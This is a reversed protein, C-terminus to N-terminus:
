CGCCRKFKKGSGCPCPQNRGAKPAKTNRSVNVFVPKGAELSKRVDTVVPPTRKLEVPPGAQHLHGYIDDFVHSYTPDLQVFDTELRVAQELSGHKVYYGGFVLEDDSFVKGHLQIRHELYERLERAGWGFNNWADGLAELDLLNIAWPYPERDEKELLLALDTALPGYNDRTVCVCFTRNALEPSLQIVIDGKENYLTIVEGAKLRRFLRMAQEYAKQIGTDARFANRLRIFAKEPDRFPETPPSAKVEVILCLDPHIIVLDHEYQLDSTEYVKSYFKAPSGLIRRFHIASENEAAIDRARFYSMRKASSSLAGEGALLVASFLNNALPCIAESNSLRILPREDVISRETPYTLPSGEGRGVSFLKWFQEGANPFATKLDSYPLKGMQHLATMLKEYARQYDSTNALRGIDELAWNNAKAEDLLALRAIKEEKFFTSVNDLGNQLRNSIWECIEVAQTASLGQAQSLNKDFPALYKRIRLATQEASAILGTNFYHLFAPMAVRRVQYWEKTQSGIEEKSPFYLPLYAVFAEELLLEAKEWDEKSLDRAVKPEESELLIGLLFSCQKAPSSLRTDFKPNHGRLLNFSFCSQVVSSTSCGHVLSRLQEVAKNIRRM